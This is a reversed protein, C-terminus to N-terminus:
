KARQLPNSALASWVACPRALPAAILTEGQWIAPSALLSRRPLLATERWNEIQELGTDGLPAISHQANLPGTIQWRADPGPIAKLERTIRLTDKHRYILCGHLTTTKYTQMLEGLAGFRPRYPNGSIHCLARTLARGATEPLCQKLAPLEFVADGHDSHAHRAIWEDAARELVDSAARMWNATQSLREQTLGLTEFQTRAERMQVRTFRTDANSPDTSWEIGKQRLMDQLEIRSASLLPRVFCMNHRLFQEPMAALGDVGSGRALRMLFTEAVDDQTHGLAIASVGIRSAWDALAQYRAARARAQLDSGGRISLTVTDHPVGLTACLASVSQAEERAQRRLGHDITVARLKSAGLYKCALVLLATSDSGGSIAIGLPVKNQLLAKNLSM